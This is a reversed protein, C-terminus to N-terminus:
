GRPRTLLWLTLAVVLCAAGAYGMSAALGRGYLVGGAFSGAAQGVYIASTNLAVTVGALAPAAAFLRAQQMANAAAFGLGWVFAGTGMIVLVGGGVGWLLLGSLILTMAVASTLAAGLRRVIRSAAVSGLFGGVGYLAFFTAIESPGAGALLTLLPGMFTIVIFQGSVQVVTIVLLLLIIADRSIAAWNALSIATGKLGRPLSMAVLIAAALAMAGLGTFCIRWGFTAALYAVLPLGVAVSLSWGIFVFAIASARDKEPVLMAATSAAQPTFVAVATLMALRLVLVAAYSSVLASAVHAAAVIFLAAALLIRRDVRSTAWSVLPSAFCLVIAGYTVLLAADRIRVSLGDALPQLKGAPALVVIGTIFNGILLALRAPFARM